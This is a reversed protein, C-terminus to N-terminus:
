LMSSVRTMPNKSRQHPIDLASSRSGQVLTTSFIPLVDITVEGEKLTPCGVLVLDRITLPFSFEVHFAKGCLPCSEHGRVYSAGLVAEEEQPVATREGQIIYLLHDCPIYDIPVYTGALEHNPPAEGFIHMGGRAFSSGMFNYDIDGCSMLREELKQLEGRYTPLLFFIRDQLQRQTLM